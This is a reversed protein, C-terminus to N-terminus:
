GRNAAGNARGPRGAEAAVGREPRQQVVGERGSTAPGEVLAEKAELIQVMRNYRSNDNKVKHFPPVLDEGFVMEKRREEGVLDMPYRLMSSVSELDVLPLKMYGCKIDNIGYSVVFEKSGEDFYAGCPFVVEPLGAYWNEASTGTLLPITTFRVMQFPPKAEFAYAGMFYRRKHVNWKVSSHFFTWYVDGVRIPNTGGRVEGYEWHRNFVETVHKKVPNLVGDMEVVVHPAASYIMHPKGDHRFWLWNKEHGENVMAQAMNNGYIPDFRGVFELRDNLLMMAQHAYSRGQVFACCSVGWHGGFRIVRPDEFQEAVDHKKFTLPTISKVRFKEDLEAVVLDNKERFYDTDSVRKDKCRRTFMLIRGDPAKTIAPNFYVYDPSAPFEIVGTEWLVQGSFPPIQPKLHKMLPVLLSASQRLDQVLANREKRLTQLHLEHESKLTEIQKLLDSDSLGQVVWRRLRERLWNKVEITCNPVTKIPSM